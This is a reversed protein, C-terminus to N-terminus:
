AASVTPGVALSYVFLWRPVIDPIADRAYTRFYGTICAEIEVGRGTQSVHAPPAGSTTVSFVRQIDLVPDADPIRRESEM